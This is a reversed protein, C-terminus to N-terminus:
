VKIHYEGGQTIYKVWKNAVYSRSKEFVKLFRVHLGSATFMFIQFELQIPEHDQTHHNNTKSSRTSHIVELDGTLVADVGGMWKKVKWIIASEEAVYKAKGLPVGRLKVRSTGKPVPIKVLVNKAFLRPDFDGRISLQFERRPNVSSSYTVRFPLKIHQHSIRYRMLEFAGDPPIFSIVRDSDFKGLQVCRHFTCDELVVNEPHTASKLGSVTTTSSSSMTKNNTGLLLLQDNLGINCEPMGSLLANM